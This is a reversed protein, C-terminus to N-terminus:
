RSPIVPGLPVPLDVNILIRAPALAVMSSQRSLPQPGRDARVRECGVKKPAKAEGQPTTGCAALTVLSLLCAGSLRHM